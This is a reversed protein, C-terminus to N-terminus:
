MTPGPEVEAITVRRSRLVWYPIMMLRGMSWVAARVLAAM